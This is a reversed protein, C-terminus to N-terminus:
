FSRMNEIVGVTDRSFVVISLNNLDLDAVDEHEAIKTGSSMTPM